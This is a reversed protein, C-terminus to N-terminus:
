LTLEITPGWFVKKFNKVQDNSVKVGEKELLEKM